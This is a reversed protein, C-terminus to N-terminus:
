MAFIMQLLRFLRPKDTATLKGIHAQLRTKDASRIQDCAASSKRGLITVTTRFPWDQMSTTLPVIVVTRLHRNMEDPSVVICPRIKRIESGQTPEPDFWYVEGQRPYEDV